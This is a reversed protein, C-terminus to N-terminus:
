IDDVFYAIDRNGIHPADEICHNVFRAVAFIGNLPKVQVIEIKPLESYYEYLGFCDGHKINHDDYECRVQFPQGPAIGNKLGWVFWPPFLPDRILNVGFGERIMFLMKQQAPSIASDIEWPEIARYKDIESIEANGVEVLSEGNPSIAVWALLYGEAHHPWEDSRTEYFVDFLLEKERKRRPVHMGRPKRNKRLARRVGRPRAMVQKGGAKKMYAWNSGNGRSYYANMKM